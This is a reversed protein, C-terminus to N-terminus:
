LLLQSSDCLYRWKSEPSSGIYACSSESFISSLKVTWNVSPWCWSWRCTITLTSGTLSWSGRIVLNFLHWCSWLKYRFFHCILHTVGLFLFFLIVTKRMKTEKLFLPRSTSGPSLLSIDLTVSNACSASVGEESTLYMNSLTGVCPNSWSLTPAKKKTKTNIFVPPGRNVDGM